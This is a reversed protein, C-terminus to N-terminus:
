CSARFLFLAWWLFDLDLHSMLFFFCVSFSLLLCLNICDCVVLILALTLLGHCLEGEWENSDTWDSSFAILLTCLNSVCLWIFVFCSCVTFLPLATQIECQACPKLYWWTLLHWRMYHIHIVATPNYAPLLHSNEDICFNLKTYTKTSFFCHLFSFIHATIEWDWWMRQVCLRFNQSNVFRSFNHKYLFQIKHIKKFFVM